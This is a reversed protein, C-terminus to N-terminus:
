NKCSMRGELFRRNLTSFNQRTLEAHTLHLFESPSCFTKRAGPRGQSNWRQLALLVETELTDITEFDTRNQDSTDVKTKFEHLAKKLTKSTERNRWKGGETKLFVFVPRGTKRAHDFEAATYTLGGKRPILSGAKFGIILVVADCQTLERLAVDLPKTPESVFFEM